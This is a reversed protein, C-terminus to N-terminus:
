VHFRLFANPSIRKLFICIYYKNLHELRENKNCYIHCLHICSNILLHMIAM